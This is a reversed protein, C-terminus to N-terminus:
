SYLVVELGLFYRQIVIELCNSDEINKCLLTWFKRRSCKLVKSTKFSSSPPFQVSHKPCCPVVYKYSQSKQSLSFIYMCKYMCVHVCCKYFYLFMHVMRVFASYLCRFVFVYVTSNVQSVLHSFSRQM